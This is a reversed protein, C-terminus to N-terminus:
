VDFIAGEEDIWTNIIYKHLDETQPLSPAEEELWHFVDSIRSPPVLPLTAIRRVWKRAQDDNLYQKTLGLSQVQFILM